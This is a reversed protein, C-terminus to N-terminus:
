IGLYAEKVRDSEMLDRGTGDLVIRGNELVYGRNCMALTQRVNQEVLLVTVGEERIRKITEFVQEVMIPALGLSPEDFMMLKPLSMLGRAIALMQQEGGSLTGARQKRREGLIPFLSFVESLKEARRKRAKYSFSGMLLNEEVSM